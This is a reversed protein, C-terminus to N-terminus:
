VLLRECGAERAAAAAALGAPGGGIILIDVDTM